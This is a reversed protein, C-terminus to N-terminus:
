QGMREVHREVLADLDERKFFWRTGFKVIPVDGRLAIDRLTTYPVGLYEAAGVAPLVRSPPRTAAAAGVARTRGGGSRRGAANLTEQAM